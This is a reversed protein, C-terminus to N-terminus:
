LGEWRYAIVTGSPDITFGRETRYGGPYGYWGGWYRHLYTYTLEKSGDTLRYTNSPPGWKAVLETESKGVWSKLYKELEDNREQRSPGCSVLFFACGLLLLPFYKLTKMKM